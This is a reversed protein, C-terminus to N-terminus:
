ENEEHRKDGGVIEQPPDCAPGRAEGEDADGAIQATVDKTMQGPVRRAIERVAHRAHQGAANGGCRVGHEGDLVHHYPIHQRRADGCKRGDRQNSGDTRIHCEPQDHDGAAHHDRHEAKGRGALREVVIKGVLRGNDVALHDVDDAVHRQDARKAADAVLVLAEVGGDIPFHGRAPAAQTVQLLQPEKVGAHGHNQRDGQHRPRDRQPLVALRGGTVDDQDAREAERDETGGTIERDGQDIDGLVDRPQGFGDCRQQHRVLQAIVGRGLRQYLAAGRNREVIDGEAIGAALLDELPEAQAELGALADAQDTLGAAALGRQERQQLAEVIGVLAADGDVPLVDGLHRLLAQALGDRDHRLVNRQEVTGNALVDAIAPGIRGVVLHQPRRDRGAAIEDVAQRFTEVGHDAVAADLQGAALALADRDRACEHLIRRDQQQVLRGSREITFGFLRNALRQRRSIRPRM